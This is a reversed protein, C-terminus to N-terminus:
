IRAMELCFKVMTGKNWIRYMTIDKIDFEYYQQEREVLNEINNKRKNWITTM